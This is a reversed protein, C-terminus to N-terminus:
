PNAPKKYRKNKNYGTINKSDYQYDGNTNLPLFAAKTVGSKGKNDSVMNFKTSIKDAPTLNANFGQAADGTYNINASQPNIGKIFDTTIPSTGGVKKVDDFGKTDGGFKSNKEYTDLISGKWNIAM